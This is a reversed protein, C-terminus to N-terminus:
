PFYLSGDEHTICKTYRHPEFPVILLVPDVLLLVVAQRKLRSCQNKVIGECNEPPVADRLPFLPPM